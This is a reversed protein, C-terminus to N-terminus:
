ATKEPSTENKLIQANQQRALIQANKAARKELLAALRKSARGVSTVANRSSPM